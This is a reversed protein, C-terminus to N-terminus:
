HNVLHTEFRQKRDRYVGYIARTSYPINFIICYKCKTDFFLIGIEKFGTLKVIERRLGRILQRYTKRKCIEMAFQVVEEVKENKELMLQGMLMSELKTSYFEIMIKVLIQDNYNWGKSLHMPLKKRTKHGLKNQIAQM